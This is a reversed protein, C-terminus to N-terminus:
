DHYPCPRDRGCVEGDNKVVDCTGADGGDASGNGVPECAECFEVEAEHADISAEGVPRTHGPAAELDDCEEDHHITAGLYSDGSEGSLYYTM